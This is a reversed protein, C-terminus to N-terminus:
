VLEGRLVGEAILARGDIPHDSYAAVIRNFIAMYGDAFERGEPPAVFPRSGGPGDGRRALLSFSGKVPKVWCPFALPPAVARARLDIVAFDPVAEPAAVRQAIRSRFLP